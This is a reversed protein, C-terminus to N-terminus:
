RAVVSGLAYEIMRNFVEPTEVGGQKGGRELPFAESKGAGLITITCHM